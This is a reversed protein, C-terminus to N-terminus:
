TDLLSLGTLIGCNTRWIWSIHFIVLPLDSVWSDKTVMQYPVTAPRNQDAKLNKMQTRLFAEAGLKGRQRWNNSFFHTERAWQYNWLWTSRTRPVTMPAKQYSVSGCIRQHLAIECFFAITVGVRRSPGFLVFSWLVVDTGRLYTSEKLVRWSSFLKPSIGSSYYYNFLVKMSEKQFNRGSASELRAAIPCYKTNKPSQGNRCGIIKM